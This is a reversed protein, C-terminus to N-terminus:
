NQNMSVDVSCPLCVSVSEYISFFSGTFIWLVQSPTVTVGADQPWIGTEM